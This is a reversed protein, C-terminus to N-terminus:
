RWGRHKCNQGERFESAVLEKGWIKNGARRPYQRFHENREMFYRDIAAKAEDASQYDSNHIVATALGSFVSEIVNLFQARSPLPALKVAPTLHRKRYHCENVVEVRALFLKSAHWSAADWSFYIRKCGSYKAILIDLLKIMEHSNKKESYFHTIQNTSLELAATVILVGKSRQWQPVTPYESAAVLRRGGTKKVSFPGFEDISFFREEPGLRSLVSTIKRLKDKYHPDNSTLVERAKRFRYGANKIIKSLINHGAGYGRAAMVKGLLKTTWTTRNIGYQSPPCHITSLLTERYDPDEAKRVKCRPRNRYYLSSRSISLASAVVKAEYGQKVLKRAQSHLEGCSGVAVKRLIEAEVAKRELAREIQRIRRDKVTDPSAIARQRAEDKWRYYATPSIERQRCTEQINRRRIGELVIEWKQERTREVRPRRGM